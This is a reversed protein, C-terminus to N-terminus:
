QPQIAAPPLRFEILAPNAVDISRMGARLKLAASRSFSRQTTSLLRLACVSECRMAKRTVSLAAETNAAM